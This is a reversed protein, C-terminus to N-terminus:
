VSRCHGSAKDTRKDRAQQECTRRGLHAEGFMRSVGPQDEIKWTYGAGCSADKGLSQADRDDASVRGGLM